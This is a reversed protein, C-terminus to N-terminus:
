QKLLGHTVTVVSENNNEFIVTLNNIPDYSATTGSKYGVFREGNKITNEVVSPMLGRNQIQDLAHGSYKRGNILTPQNRCPQYKPNQLEWGKCGRISGHPQSSCEPPKEDSVKTRKIWSSLRDKAYYRATAATLRIASIGVSATRAVPGVVPIAMSLYAAGEGTKEVCYSMKDEASMQNWDSYALSREGMVQNTLEVGAYANSIGRTTDLVVRRGYSVPIEVVRKTSEWARGYWPRNDQANRDSNEGATLGFPDVLILPNNHVYHYLNVGDAFNSPDPTMWRALVPSYDRFAFHVLQTLPDVRKSAFGWPCDREQFTQHEGFASFRSWSVPKGCDKFLCTLNGRQDCLAAYINQELEIAITAGVDAGRSKGLIRLEKCENNRYAGIEHNGQYLFMTKETGKTRSLRRGFSDYSYTVKEGDKDVQILRDLADYHYTTNLYSTLNGNLDYEAEILQNLDNVELSVGNFKRRNGFSDYLFAEESETILQDLYDYSYTDKQIGKPDILTQTLLNGNEDFADWTQKWGPAEITINRGMVDWKLSFIGGHINQITHPYGRLDNELYKHKYVSTKNERYVTRLDAVDYEYAITTKDPLEVEKLRGNLDYRYKMTLENALTESTLQNLSNFTRLTAEKSILDKVSIINDNLDYTYQYSIGSSKLKAMRGLSDYYYHLIIGNPKICSKLRGCKDYTFHTTKRGQENQSLPRGHCDYTWKVTYTGEPSHNYFRTGIYLSKNGAQDYYFKYSSILKGYPDLTKSTILRELLDFEEITNIGKPDTTTKLLVNGYEYTFHTTNGDADTTSAIDGNAYYTNFTNSIENASLYISTQICNGSYDYSYSKKRYLKDNEDEVREEILRGSNDYTMVEVRQHGNENPYITKALRGLHDYAYRTIILIDDAHVVQQIKRGAGDYLFETLYGAPDKHAVVKNGKYHTESQRLKIGERSYEEVRIQHGLADYQYETWNGTGDIKKALWGNLLYEFKETTQDPYIILTPKGYANYEFTTIGNPAEIKVMNGAADYTKLTVPTIFSGPAVEIQPQTCKIEHGEADYEYRTVNGFRDKTFELQSLYNYTFCTTATPSNAFKEQKKILRNVFDYAFHIERGELPYSELIKNDNEDYSYNVISGSPDNQEIIRGRKDYQTVIEYCFVGDSGSVKESTVQGYKDYAFETQKLPRVENNLPDLYSEIKLKPKGFNRDTPNDIPILRTMKRETVETLDDKDIGIGDDEIIQTLIANSDYEYFTRHLSKGKYRIVKATMLNSNPMYAYLIQHGYTNKESLRLNFGDNSYTYHKTFSETPSLPKGEEDISFTASANGTLNGYIKEKVINGWRITQNNDRDYDYRILNHANGSKDLVAKGFIFGRFHIYKGDTERDLQHHDQNDSWYFRDIHYPHDIKVLRNNRFYYSTLNNKADFVETYHGHYKFSHTRVSSKDIGVPAHLDTVKGATNYTIELFRGDPKDVRDFKFQGGKKLKDCPRYNRQPGNQPCAEYLMDVKRKANNVYFTELREKYGVWRDNSGVVIVHTPHYDFEIWGLTVNQAKNKVRIAKLLYSEKGSWYEYVLVHTNPKEEKVIQHMGCPFAQYHRKTGDGETVVITNNKKDFDVVTHLPNTKAGIGTESYNTVGRDLINKIIRLHYHHSNEDIKLGSVEVFAGERTSLFGSFCHKGPQDLRNISLPYQSGFGTGYATLAKMGSDYCLSFHLPDICNVHVDTNIEFFEGSIANVCGAVTALPEAEASLPYDEANLTRSLLVILLFLCRRM